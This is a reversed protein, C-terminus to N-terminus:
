VFNFNPLFNALFTNFVKISKGLCFAFLEYDLKNFAIFLSLKLM